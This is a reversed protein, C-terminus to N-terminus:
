RAGRAVLTSFVVSRERKKESWIFRVVIEKLGPATEKVEVECRAGPLKPLESTMEASQIRTYPQARVQEMVGEAFNSAADLDNAQRVLSSSGVFTSVGATLAVVLIAIAAITAVLGIGRNSHIPKM